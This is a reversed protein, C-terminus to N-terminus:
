WSLVGEKFILSNMIESKQCYPGLRNLSFKVNWSLCFEEFTHLTPQSSLALFVFDKDKPDFSLEYISDFLKIYKTM